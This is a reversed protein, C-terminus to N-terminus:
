MIEGIVNIPKHTFFTLEDLKKKDITILVVTAPGAVTITTVIEFFAKFPREPNILLGICTIPENQRYDSSITDKTTKNDLTVQKQAEFLTLTLVSITCKKGNKRCFKNRNKFLNRSDNNRNNLFLGHVTPSCLITTYRLSKVFRKPLVATVLRRSVYPLFM